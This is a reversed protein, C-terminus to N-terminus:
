TTASPPPTRIREPDFTVNVEVLKLESTPLSWFVPSPVPSLTQGGSAAVQNQRAVGDGRVSRANRRTVHLTRPSYEIHVERRDGSPIPARPPQPVRTRELGGVSPCAGQARQPRAHVSVGGCSLTSLGTARQAAGAAARRMAIRGRDGGWTAV